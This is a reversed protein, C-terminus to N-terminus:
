LYNVLDPHVSAAALIILMVAGYLITKTNKHLRQLLSDSFGWVAIWWVISILALLIRMM